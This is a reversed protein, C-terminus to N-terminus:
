WRAAGRQQRARQWTCVTTALVGAIGRKMFRASLVMAVGLVILHAGPWAGGLNAQLASGLPVVLAAGLLPGFVTGIGGILTLLAFKLGVDLLSFVSPPDIYRLYMAFFTGGCSTLAASLAMGQLKVALVNIGSARASDEDERVALLYYGLRRRRLLLAILTVAALFVFMLVAYKWREAFIMNAFGARFPILVGQPGGTVGDFYNALVFAVQNFAMTAIVFFPGRLRFTPWSLLAAVGAALLAAPILTIWPSVGFLVYLRAACYAGLGFFVGHALSFQGGFGGIINWAGALGAMLYTFTVINLWYPDQLVLLMPLLAAAMGLVYALLVNRLPAVGARTARPPALVADDLLIAAKDRSV